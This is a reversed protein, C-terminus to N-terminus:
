QRMDFVRAYPFNVQFTFKVHKVHAERFSVDVIFLNLEM